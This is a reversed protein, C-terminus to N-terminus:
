LQVELIKETANWHCSYSQSKDFPINYHHLFSIASISALKGNRNVKINYAHSIPQNTPRIGIKKNQKDYLFVVFKYDKLYNTYCEQNLGIRGHKLISVMPIATNSRTKGTFEEFAM